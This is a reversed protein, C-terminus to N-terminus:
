AAGLGGWLLHLHHRLEPVAPQPQEVDGDGDGDGVGEDDGDEPQEVDGGLEDDVVASEQNLRHGHLPPEGTDRHVLRVADAGPSVVEPRVEELQSAELPFKVPHRDNRECRRCSRQHLFADYIHELQYVWLHGADDDDDDNPLADNVQEMHDVRLHGPTTKVSRVQIQLHPPFLLVKPSRDLRKDLM